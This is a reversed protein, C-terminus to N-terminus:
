ECDNKNVLGKFTDNVSPFQLHLPLSDILYISRENLLFILSENISDWPVPYAVTYGSWHLGAPWRKSVRDKIGARFFFRGTELGSKLLEDV